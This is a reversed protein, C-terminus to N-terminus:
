EIAIRASKILAGWRQYDAQLQAAFVEPRNGVPIFGVKTYAERVEADNLVEAVAAQLLDVIPKPTRAPALLSYWSVVEFDPFGQEKVTPVDPMLSMRDKGTVALAKLRGDQVFPLATPPVTVVLPVQGAVADMVAASGGKYPVHLLKVGAKSALLEGVMHHTTGAGASGYALERNDRRVLDIVEKLSQVKLSPHALFVMPSDALKTIPTLDKLPNVTTKLLQSAIAVSGDYGMLLTYGDPPATAVMQAGILGSAGPRTDIVVPVGLRKSLKDAIARVSLDGGGGASFPNVIRIPRDPFNQAHVHCALWLAMLCMTWRRLVGPLAM